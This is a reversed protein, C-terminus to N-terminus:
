AGNARCRSCDNPIVETGGDIACSWILIVEIGLEEKPDGRGFSQKERELLVTLSAVRLKAVRTM